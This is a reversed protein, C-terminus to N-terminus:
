RPFYFSKCSLYDAVSRLICAFSIPVAIKLNEGDVLGIDKLVLFSISCGVFVFNIIAWKKEAGHNSKSSAGISVFIGWVVDISLLVTLFWAFHSPKKLLLSLVAFALAHVFLLIFDFVLAGDKIHSSDSELYADYLHRIAGHVFPILTAVFAIFLLITPLTVSQLGSNSDVVEAVARSLAVGIVVTYLNILSKISNERSQLQM